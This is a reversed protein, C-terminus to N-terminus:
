PQIDLSKIIQPGRSACESNTKRQNQSKNPTLTPWPSTKLLGKDTPIRQPTPHLCCGKPSNSYVSRDFRSIRKVNVSFLFPWVTFKFENGMYLCAQLKLNELLRNAMWLGPQFMGAEGGGWQTAPCLKKGTGKRWSNPRQAGAKLQPRPNFSAM